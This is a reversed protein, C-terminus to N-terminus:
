ALEGETFADSAGLEGATAFSPGAGDGFARAVRDGAPAPTLVSVLPVVILSALMALSGITPAVKADSGYHWMLILSVALGVVIGSWASALTTRRSWLGWVYPGIFAGSVTGWSISMLTVILQWRQQALVVSLVIFCAILVRLLTVQGRRSLDRKMEGQVLDISIASSSIMVLGALTSMSASLVLLLIVVLLVQPLAQNLVAPMISDFQKAQALPAAVPFLHALAGTFYAGFAVLAAFVTSIIIAPRVVATSKIAYFKHVM